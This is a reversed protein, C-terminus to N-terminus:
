GSDPLSMPKRRDTRRRDTSHFSPPLLDFRTVRGNVAREIEECRDVPPYGKNIWKYVAQPSVKCAAALSVVGNDMLGIAKQLATQTQTDM